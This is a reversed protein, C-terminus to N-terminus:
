ARLVDGDPLVLWRRLRTPDIAPPLERRRSIARYDALSCGDFLMPFRPRLASLLSWNALWSDPDGVLRTPQGRATGGVVEDVGISGARVASLDIVAPTQPAPEQSAGLALRPARTTIVLASPPVSARAGLGDGARTPAARPEGAAWPIAIQVRRDNWRGAGAALESDYHAAKGDALLHDQRSALRLLIRQAFLPSLSSLPGGLRAATAVVTIGRRSGDRLLTTLRQLVEGQYEPEFAALLSDLDDIAVIRPSPAEASARSGGPQVSDGALAGIADWAGEVGVGLSVYPVSAFEASRRLTELATSRGSRGSGLVLLSGHEGPDFRAVPQAQEEPLDFSGLVIGPAEDDVPTALLTELPLRSPLPERWPRRPVAGNRRAGAIAERDAQAVQFQRAPGGGISVLCRGRREAPLTAADHVGLLAVSDSANNVRLSLRLDCNALLSDRVVGAPRQTCLVLHIGLSRGRAAIDAFADHLQPFDGLMAAFEDVVIVLRPLGHGTDRDSIDRAGVARLRRERFRLEARLSTLARDAEAPDLDTILGVCHELELLPDFASGGKFDVLLVTLEDASYTRALSAVWTVLLESKGSGTTGGIVAHPGDRVLDLTVAGDGDSGLAVALSGAASGRAGGARPPEALEVLRVSSPIDGKPRRLSEDARSSLAAAFREAERVTIYECVLAGTESPDPHVPLEAASGASVRVVIPFGPPVLDLAEAILIVIPRQPVARPSEADVTHIAEGRRPERRAAPRREEVVVATSAGRHPLSAFWDWAAPDVSSAVFAGAEPDIATAFQVAYGRAISRAQPLPGVIAIGKTQQGSGPTGRASALVASALVPSDVLVAAEARLLREGEPPRGGGGGTVTVTSPRSGSGLRVAPVAGAASTWLRADGALCSAATPAIRGRERREAEHLASLEERFEELEDAYAEAAKRATRARHVRADILAAVAVVPGLLAFVLAFPSQTVLWMVGSVALPALSGILPFPPRPQSQLKSPLALSLPPAPLVSSQM